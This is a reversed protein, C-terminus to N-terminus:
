PPDESRDDDAAVPADRGEHPTGIWRTIAILPILGLLWAALGEAVPGAGGFDDVATTKRAQLDDIFAAVDDIDEPTFTRFTPMAGPGTLIAEGIETPTASMLAPAERGGGIAAGAGSAVHCAACNLRYLVGGAAANGANADVLPIEPGSGFAGAYEVLAIIDEESYRVPGRTAQLDPAALPMRGTRLVFDVAAPGEETLAPGRGDVGKGRDGHCAACQTAYLIAGLSDDPQNSPVATPGGAPSAAVTGPEASSPRAFSVLAVVVAAAPPVLLLRHWM